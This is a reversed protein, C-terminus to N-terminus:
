DDTSLGRIYAQIDGARWAVARAGIRVAKPFKGLAILKYIYGQSIGLMQELTDCRLLQDPDGSVIQSAKPRTM